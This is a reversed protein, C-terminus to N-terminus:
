SMTDLGLKGIKLVKIPRNEYSRGIEVISVKDKHENALCDMYRLM